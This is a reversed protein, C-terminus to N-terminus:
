NERTPFHRCLLRQLTFLPASISVEWGSFELFIDDLAELLDTVVEFIVGSPVPALGHGGDDQATTLLANDVGGDYMEQPVGGLLIYLCFPQPAVAFVVAMDLDVAESKLSECETSGEGGSVEGGVGEGPSKADLALAFGSVGVDDPISVFQEFVSNVGVEEETDDNLGPGVAADLDGCTEGRHVVDRSYRAM